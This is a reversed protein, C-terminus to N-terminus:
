RSWKGRAILRNGDFLEIPAEGSFFKGYENWFPIEIMVDYDIGLDFTEVAARSRVICSTLIEGLKLQPRIGSLAATSRGGESPSLFRLRAEFTKATM